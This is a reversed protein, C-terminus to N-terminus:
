EGAKITEMHSLLLGIGYCSSAMEAGQAEAQRAGVEEHAARDAGKNCTCSEANPLDVRPM